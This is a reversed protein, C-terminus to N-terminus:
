KGANERTYFLKGNRLAYIPRSEAEMSNTTQDWYLVNKDSPDPKYVKRELPIVLTTDDDERRLRGKIEDGNVVGGDFPGGYCKIQVM